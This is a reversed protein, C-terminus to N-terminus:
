LVFLLDRFAERHLSVPQNLAHRIYFDANLLDIFLSERGELGEHKLLRRMVLRFVGAVVLFEYCGEAALVGHGLKEDRAVPVCVRGDAIDEEVM